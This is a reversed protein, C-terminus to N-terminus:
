AKTECPMQKCEIQSSNRGVQINIQKNPRVELDWLCEVEGRPGLGPHLLRPFTLSGAERAELAVPGCVPPHLYRYQARFLPQKVKYYNQRAFEANISLRLTLEEGKSFSTHVKEKSCSSFCAETLNSSVVLPDLIEVRDVAPNAWCRKCKKINSKLNINRVILSIRKFLRIDSKIKYNCKIPGKANKFILSNRPSRFTGNKNNQMTLVEDCM